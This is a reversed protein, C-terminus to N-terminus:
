DFLDERAPARVEDPHGFRLIRRVGGSHPQKGDAPIVVEGYVVERHGITELLTDIDANSTHEGRLLAENFAKATEAPSLSVPRGLRWWGHFTFAVTVVGLFMIAAAVWFFPYHSIFVVGTTTQQVHLTQQYNVLNPAALGAAVATRFVIRSISSVI